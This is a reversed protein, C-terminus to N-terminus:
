PIQSLTAPSQCYLEAALLAQKATQYQKCIPCDPEAHAHVGDRWEPTTVDVHNVKSLAWKLASALEPILSTEANM